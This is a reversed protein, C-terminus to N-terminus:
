PGSAADARRVEGPGAHGIVHQVTEETDYYPEDFMHHSIFRQRAHDTTVDTRLAGLADEEGLSALQHRGRSGPVSDVERRRSPRLLIGPLPGVGHDLDDRTEGSPRGAGHCVDSDGSLYISNDRGIRIEVREMRGQDPHVPPGDGLGVPRGLPDPHVVDVRDGSEVRVGAMGRRLHTPQEVSEVFAGAMQTGGAVITM